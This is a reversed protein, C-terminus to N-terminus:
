QQSEQRLQQAATVASLLDKLSFGTPDNVHMKVACAQCLHVVLSNEGRTQTIHVTAEEAACIDCKMVQSREHSQWEAFLVSSVDLTCPM